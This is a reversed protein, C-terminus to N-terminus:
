VAQGAALGVQVTPAPGEGVEGSLRGARVDQGGESCQVCQVSGREM